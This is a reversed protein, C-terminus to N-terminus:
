PLKYTESKSFFCTLITVLKTVTKNFIVMINIYISQNIFFVMIKLRNLISVNFKMMYIKVIKVHGKFIHTIPNCLRIEIFTNKVMFSRLKEKYNYLSLRFCYYIVLTFTLWLLRQLHKEFYINKFFECYGCSFVQTPTENWYVQLASPM